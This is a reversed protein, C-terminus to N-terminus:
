LKQFSGTSPSNRSKDAAQMAKKVRRVAAESLGTFSAIEPLTFRGTQLLKLAVEEKVIQMGEKRGEERGERKVTERVAYEDWQAMQEQTYRMYEEKTLRSVEAITFLKQFITKSLIVPIKDIKSMNKLVYLWRDLDTDLEDLGKTFSPIELFIFSLKDYFIKWFKDERLRVRHLYQGPASDKFRFDMLGIFYVEPLEYNWNPGPKGQETILNCVYLLSRDKFYDQRVKQVEIIFHEGNKGTCTLDFVTKRGEERSPPYENKQYQLDTIQKGKSKLLQNLFHILLEKQPERGFLRKFGLDSLPDVYTGIRVKKGPTATASKM